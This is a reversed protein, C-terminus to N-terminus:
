IAPDILCDHINESPISRFITGKRLHKRQKAQKKTSNAKSQISPGKAKFSLVTPNPHAMKTIVKRTRLEQMTQGLSPTESRMRIGISCVMWTLAVTSYSDTFLQKIQESSFLFILICNLDVHSMETTDSLCSIPSFCALLSSIDVTGTNSISSSFSSPYLCIYTTYSIDM